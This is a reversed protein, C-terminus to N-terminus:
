MSDLIAQRRTKYESETIYGKAALSDLEDLKQQTSGGGSGAPAQQYVVQPQQQQRYAQHEAAETRRRDNDMARTLVHGGIMGGVFAGGDGASARDSYAVSGGAVVLAVAVGLVQRGATSVRKM